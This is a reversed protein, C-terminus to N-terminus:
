LVRTQLQSNRVLKTIIKNTILFTVFWMNTVKLGVFLKNIVALNCVALECSWCNDTVEFIVFVIVVLVTQVKWTVFPKNTIWFTVFLM